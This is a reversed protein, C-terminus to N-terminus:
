PPCACTDSVSPTNGDVTFCGTTPTFSQLVGGRDTWAIDGSWAVAAPDCGEFRGFTVWAVDGANAASTNLLTGSALSVEAFRGDVLVTGVREASHGDFSVNVLEVVASGGASFAGGSPYDPAVFGPDAAVNDTFTVTDVTVHASKISMGGGRHWATNGDIVFDRM